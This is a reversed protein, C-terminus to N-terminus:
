PGSGAAGYRAQPFFTVPQFVWGGGATWTWTDTLATGDSGVGGFLVVAGNMVGISAQARPRPSAGDVWQKWTSGDWLWTDGLKTTGDDGGFLLVSSTGPVSAAAAHFRASPAPPAGSGNPLNVQTWASGDFAWTDGLAAGGATGGFLVMRGGAVATAAGSRGSPGTVALLTWPDQTNGDWTWTDSLDIIPYPPPKTADEGHGGFVVVDGGLATMATDVRGSPWPQVGADAPVDPPTFYIQYWAQGDFAWMDGLYTTGQPGDPGAPHGSPDLGAFVYTMGALSVMSAGTREEPGLRPDMVGQTTWAAGDWTWTDSLASGDAGTGGFLTLGPAPFDVVFRAYYPGCTGNAVTFGTPSLFYYEVLQGSAETWDEGGQFDPGGNPSTGTGIYAHVNLPGRGPAVGGPPFQVTLNIAGPYPIWDDDWGSTVYQTPSTWFGGNFTVNEGDCQHTSCGTVAIPASVGVLIAAIGGAGALGALLRWARRTGGPAVLLSAM